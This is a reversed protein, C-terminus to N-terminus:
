LWGHNWAQDAPSLYIGNELSFNAPTKLDGVVVLHWGELNDFKRIAETPANISTSVIIKKHKQM